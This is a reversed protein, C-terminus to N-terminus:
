HTITGVSIVYILDGGIIISHVPYKQSVSRINDRLSEVVTMPSEPSQYFYGVLM